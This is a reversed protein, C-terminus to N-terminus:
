GLAAVPDVDSTRSTALALGAWRSFGLPEYGTSRAADDGYLCAVQTPRDDADLYRAIADATYDLDDADLDFAPRGAFAYARREQELMAGLTKPAGHRERHAVRYITAATETSVRRADPTESSWFVVTAWGKTVQKEESFRYTFDNLYRDTWGGGADDAVVLGVRVAAPVLALQDAARHATESAVAEAGMGILDDLVAGVHERSMPNFAVLPIAPDGEGHISAVYARFREMGRPLGTLERQVALMPVVRAEM